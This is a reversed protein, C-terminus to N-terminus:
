GLTARNAEEKPVALEWYDGPSAPQEPLHGPLGEFDAEQLRNIVPSNVQHHRLIILYGQFMILCM